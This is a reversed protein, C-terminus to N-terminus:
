LQVFIVPKIIVHKCASNCIVYFKYIFWLFGGM